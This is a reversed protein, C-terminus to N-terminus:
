VYQCVSERCSARGLSPVLPLWEIGPAIGKLWTDFMIIPLLIVIWLIIILVLMWVIRLLIRIRRGVVMDGAIALARLPYMGPLTLDSSCVDSSWDSIRM